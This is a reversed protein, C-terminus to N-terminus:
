KWIEMYSIDIEIWGDMMGDNVLFAGFIMFVYVGVPINLAM